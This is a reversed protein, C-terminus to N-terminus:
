VDVEAYREKLRRGLEPIHGQMEDLAVPNLEALSEVIMELVELALAAKDVTVGGSKSVQSLLNRRLGDIKLLLGLGDAYEMSGDAMKKLLESRAADYSELMDALVRETDLALAARGEEAQLKELSEKWGGKKAWRRVTEASLYTYGEARMSKAVEEFSLGAMYLERARKRAQPEYTRPM